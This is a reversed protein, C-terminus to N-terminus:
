RITDDVLVLPKRCLVVTFVYSRRAVFGVTISVIIIAVVVAVIVIVVIETSSCLCIRTDIIYSYYIVIIGYARELIYHYFISRLQNLVPILLYTLLDKLSIHCVCM